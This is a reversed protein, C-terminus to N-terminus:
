ASNNHACRQNVHKASNRMFYIQFFTYDGNAMPLLSGTLHYIQGQIKFTPM